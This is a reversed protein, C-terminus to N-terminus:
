DLHYSTKAIHNYIIGIFNTKAIKKNKRWRSHCIVPWCGKSFGLLHSWEDREKTPGFLM